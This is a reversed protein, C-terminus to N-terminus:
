LRNPPLKALLLYYLVAAGVVVGLTIGAAIAVVAWWPLCLM